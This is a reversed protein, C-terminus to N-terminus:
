KVEYISIQSNRFILNLYSYDSFAQTCKGYKNDDALVYKVKAKSVIAQVESEPKCEEYIRRLEKIREASDLLLISAQTDDSMYVPKAALAPVLATENYPALVLGMGPLGKLYDLGALQDHNIVDADQDVYKDFYSGLTLWSNPLSLLVLLVIIWVKKKVPLLEIWFGTLWGGIILSYYFFQITNWVTGKQIWLMPVVLGGLAVTILYLGLRKQKNQKFFKGISLLGLVRVGLNGVLFLGFAYTWHIILRVWNSDALFILREQEWQPSNLRDSAEMMTKIFWGPSLILVSNQWDINRFSALYCTIVMVMMTFTFKKWDRSQRLVLLGLTVLGFMALLGGYAKIAVLSGSLFAILLWKGWSRKRTQNVVLLLLIGLLVALSVAYPLNILTSISQQAWFSSELPTAQFKTLPLLYSINGGFYTFFLGLFIGIETKLWRRLVLYTAMGIFLAFLVPFLRFVLWTPPIALVRNLESGWLDIFYHYGVLNEGGYVPNIPPFNSTLTEMLAVHWLGDHFNVGYFMMGQHGILGNPFVLWMQAVTGLSILVKVWSPISIAPYYDHNRSYKVLGWWSVALVGITVWDRVNAWAALYVLFTWLMFGTIFAVLIMEWKALKIKTASIVLYGFGMAAVVALFFKILIYIIVIM